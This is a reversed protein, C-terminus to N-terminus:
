PTDPAPTDASGIREPYIVLEIRRNRTRGAATANSVVPHNSGHAVLFLQGQRLPTRTTFFDFVTTARAATLQHPSGWSSQPVPETDVHGEIGIFHKPFVRDIEGAVETLLASGGPLLAASGGEFLRDAPVELRVVNGHFRTEVGPRALQGMAAHMAAPGQVARAPAPTMGATVPSPMGPPPMGAVAPTGPVNWPTAAAATSRSLALQSSTSALQERLATIEDKLLQNEDQNRALTTQLQRADVDAYSPLPTAAASGLPPLSAAPAAVGPPPELSVPTGPRKLMQNSCGAALALLPWLVRRAAVSHRSAWSPIPM